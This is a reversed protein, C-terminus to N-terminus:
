KKQKAVPTDTGDWVFLIREDKTVECIHLVQEILFFLDSNSSTAKVSTILM